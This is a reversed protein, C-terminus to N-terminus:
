AAAAAFRPWRAAADAASIDGVIVQLGTRYSDLCPGEDNQIRLLEVLRAQEASAVVLQLAGGGTPWCCGQPM